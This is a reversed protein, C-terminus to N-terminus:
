RRRLVGRWTKGEEFKSHYKRLCSAFFFRRAAALLGQIVFSLLDHSKGKKAERSSSLSFQAYEVLIGHSTL